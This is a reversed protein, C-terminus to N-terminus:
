SGEPRYVGGTNILLSLESLKSETPKEKNVEVKPPEKPASEASQRIEASTVDKCWVRLMPRRLTQFINLLFYHFVQGNIKVFALVIAFGTFILVFIVFFVFTLLKFAIFDLLIAALIIIFQRTTIPGIIKDEVDIFQPVVFQQMPISASLRLYRRLNVSVDQRIM